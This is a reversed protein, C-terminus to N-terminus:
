HPMKFEKKKLDLDKMKKKLDRRFNRTLIWDKKGEQEQEKIKEAKKERPDVWFIRRKRMAILDKYRKKPDRQDNIQGRLHQGHHHTRIAQSEDGFARMKAAIIAAM